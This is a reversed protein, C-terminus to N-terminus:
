LKNVFSRGNYDNLVNIGNRGNNRNNEVLTWM